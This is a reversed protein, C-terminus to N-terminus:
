PTESFVILIVHVIHEILDHAQMIALYTPLSGLAATASDINMGESQPKSLLTIRSYISMCLWRLWPRILFFFSLKLHQVPACRNHSLLTSVSWLAAGEDQPAQSWFGSSQGRSPKERRQHMWRACGLVMVVVVKRKGSEIEGSEVREFTSKVGGANKEM